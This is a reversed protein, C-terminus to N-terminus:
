GLADMAKERRMRWRIYGALVVLGGFSLVTVELNELLVFVIWPMPPTVKRRWREEFHALPRDTVREFAEEFTAGDAVLQLLRRLEIVGYEQMFSSVAAHAVKYAISADYHEGHFAEDAEAFTPLNGSAALREISYDAQLFSVGANYVCLGEEFWRPLREGGMRALVYHVVEHALVLGLSKAPTRDLLDLRFVLRGDRRAVAVAWEPVTPGAARRMGDEDEVLYLDPRGDGAVGLWIAAHSRRVPFARQLQEAKARAHATVVM